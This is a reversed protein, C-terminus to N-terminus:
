VYLFAYCNKHSKPGEKFDISAGSKESLIKFHISMITCQTHKFYSVGSQKESFLTQSMMDPFTSCQTFNPMYTM